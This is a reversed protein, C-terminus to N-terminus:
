IKNELKGVTSTRLWPIRVYNIKGGVHGGAPPKWERMHVITSSYKANLADMADNAREWKQRIVDDNNFIDLQRANAQSLDALTIRLSHTTARPPPLDANFWFRLEIRSSIVLACALANSTM